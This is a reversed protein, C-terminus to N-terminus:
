LKNCYDNFIIAAKEIDRLSVGRYTTLRVYQDSMSKIKLGCKELENEFKKASYGSLSVDVTVINTDVLDPDVKINKNDKIKNVLIKALKHDEKLREVENQIAIIGAGAVIGAQRMGGGLLKRIRRAKKIFEKKGCLLSGLPAGLGKSLCFMVSDVPNLLEQVPINYFTAVNFIRAGDMHIPIKYKKALSSIEETKQVSMCTGGRFNNSNELCLLKIVGDKLITQLHNKQPVGKKDTDYFVPQLGFYENMFPSRESYFIHNFQSIAVADGRQCHTVLAIINAMTGSNCFMADEKGTIRAALSELSNVTPDEGKGEENVRGDDGVIAQFMANRMAKTPKTLTDSRLDIM